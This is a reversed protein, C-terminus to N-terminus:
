LGHTVSDSVVLCSFLVRQSPLEAEPFRDQPLSLRKEPVYSFFWKAYNGLIIQTIKNIFYTKHSHNFLNRYIEFTPNCTAM